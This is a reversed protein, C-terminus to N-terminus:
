KQIQKEANEIVRQLRQLNTVYDCLTTHLHILEWDVVVRSNGFLAAIEDQTTKVVHLYSSNVDQITKDLLQSLM